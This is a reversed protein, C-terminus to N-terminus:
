AGRRRATKQFLALRMVAIKHPLTVNAGVFGMKPMARIVARLDEEEVQLPLYQGRIGYRRLWHGHILPSKSHGIPNGLVAALPPPPKKM